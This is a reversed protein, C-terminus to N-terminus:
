SLAISLDFPRCLDYDVYQLSLVITSFKIRVDYTYFIFMAGIFPSLQSVNEDIYKKCFPQAYM